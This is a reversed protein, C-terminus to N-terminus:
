PLSPIHMQISILDWRADRSRIMHGLLFPEGIGLDSYCKGSPQPSIPLLFSSGEKMHKSALGRGLAQPLARDLVFSIPKGSTQLSPLTPPKGPCQALSDTSQPCGLYKSITVGGFAPFCIIFHSLSSALPLSLILQGKAM